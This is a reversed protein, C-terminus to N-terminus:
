LTKSYTVTSHKLYADFVMALNRLFLRGLATVQVGASDLTLLNDVEFRRLAELEEKFCVTFSEFFAEEYETYSIKFRCMISQIIWKRKKDDDSLLIGRHSAFEGGFIKKEYESPDKINQFFAGGVESIASAGMGLLHTGKKVTYGMFNRYLQGKELSVFLEDSRKAFHDLGINEYGHSTLVDYALSFIKLREEPSPMPMTDLIKQHPILHPLHAYNYLAIRDPSMAVVQRLTEKFGLFTQQPLGYILDFNIGFFGLERCNKLFADTMEVPQIRHIAAQVKADFDQVGFSIRNFGLRRLLQLQELTTVRPDVEISIEAGPLFTFREKIRSFLVSIESLSLFTPTGGGWSMQNVTLPLSNLAAIQNIEQLVSETYIESRKKNKNIQINCGCYYCLNECFPLHFYLAIPEKSDISAVKEKFYKAGVQASWQPATPYSTYRPGSGGYKEVLRAIDM